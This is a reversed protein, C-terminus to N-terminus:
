KRCRKRKFLWVAIAVWIIGVIGGPLIVKRFLEGSGPMEVLAQMQTGDSRLLKVYGNVGKKYSYIWNCASFEKQRLQQYLGGNVAIGEPIAYHHLEQAILDFVLVSNYFYIKIANEEYAFAFALETTFCLEQLLTGDSRYIDIYVKKFDFKSIDNPDVHRSYVAFEGNENAAAQMFYAHGSCINSVSFNLNQPLDIEELLPIAEASTAFAVLCNTFLLVIALILLLIVHKAKIM